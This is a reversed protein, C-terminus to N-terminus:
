GVALIEGSQWFEMNPFTPIHRHYTSAVRYMCTTQMQMSWSSTECGVERHDGGGISPM